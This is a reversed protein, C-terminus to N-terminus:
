SIKNVIGIVTRMTYMNYWYKTNLSDGVFDNNDDKGPEEAEQNGVTNRKPIPATAILANNLMKAIDPKRDSLGGALLPANSVFTNTKITKV